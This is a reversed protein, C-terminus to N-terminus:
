SIWRVIGGEFIVYFNNLVVVTKIILLAAIALFIVTRAFKFPLINGVIWAVMVVAVFTVGSLAAVETLGYDDMFKAAIPNAEYGIGTKVAYMTTFADCAALFASVVLLMFTKM